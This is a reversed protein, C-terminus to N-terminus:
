SRIRTPKAKRSAARSDRSAGRRRAILPITGDPILGAVIGGFYDINPVMDQTIVVSVRVSARQGPELPVVQPDFTFVLRAEQGDESVFRLASMGAVTQRGVTNTIMFTASVREGASGELVSAPLATGDARRSPGVLPTVLTAGIRDLIATASGTFGLKLSRVFLGVLADAQAHTRESGQSSDLMWFALVHGRLFWFRGAALPPLTLVNIEGRNRGTQIQDIVIGLYRQVLPMQLVGVQSFPNLLDALARRVFAKHPELLRLEHALLFYLRESLPAQPEVEDAFEDPLRQLVQEFIGVALHDRSPYRRAVEAVPLKAAAAVREVTTGTWGVEDFSRAAADL